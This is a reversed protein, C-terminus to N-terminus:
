YSSAIPKQMEESSLVAGGTIPSKACIKLPFFAETKAALAMGPLGTSPQVFALLNQKKRCWSSHKDLGMYMGHMVAAGHAHM